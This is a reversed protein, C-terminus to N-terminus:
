AIRGAPLAQAALSRLAAQVTLQMIPCITDCIPQRDLVDSALNCKMQYL